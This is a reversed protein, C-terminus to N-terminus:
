AFLQFADFIVAIGGVVAVLIIFGILVLLAVMPPSFRRPASQRRDSALSTQGDSPPTSGPDVEGGDELDRDPKSPSSDATM